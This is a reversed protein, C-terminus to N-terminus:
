PRLWPRCPIGNLRRMHRGWHFRLPNDYTPILVMLDPETDTLDVRYFAEHDRSHQLLTFRPESSLTPLAQTGSEEMEVGLGRLFDRFHQWNMNM